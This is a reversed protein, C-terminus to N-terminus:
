EPGSGAEHHCRRVKIERLGYIKAFHRDVKGNLRDTVREIGKVGLRELKHAIRLILNVNYFGQCLIMPCLVGTFVDSLHLLVSPTKAPM